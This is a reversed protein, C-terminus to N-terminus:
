KSWSIRQEIWTQGPMGPQAGKVAGFPEGGLNFMKRQNSGDANMVWIAWTNERKSVFAISKGDPSWAPLGDEAADSTLRQPSGGTAPVVWINWNPKDQDVDSMFAVKSGDPSWAPAASNVSTLTKKNGGSADVIALGCTDTPLPCDRYVIRNTSSWAPMQAKEVFSPPDQRAKVTPDNVRINYVRTNLDAGQGARSAYAYKTGDPSWTGYLDELRLSIQEDESGNSDIRHVGRQDPVWSQYLLQTGDPSFAPNSGDEALARRNGQPDSVYLTYSSTFVTFAIKGSLNGSSAQPTPSKPNPLPSAPVPVITAPAIATPVAGLGPTASPQPPPTVQGAVGCDALGRAATGLKANLVLAKQFYPIAQSCKDQAKFAQGLFAYADASNPDFTIAKQFQLIANGPQNLTLYAQGLAIYSSTYPAYLQIARQYSAVSEAANNLYVRLVEGYEFHYFFTNPELEVVRSWEALGADKQGSVIQIWGNSRHASASKDNLQLAIGVEKQADATRGARLYAEALFAHGLVNRADLTVAKEGAAIAADNQGGWALARALQAHADGNDPDLQAAKSAATSAEAVRGVLALANSLHILTDANDPEQKLAAQYQALAPDMQGQAMLDDGARLLTQVSAGPVPAATATRSARTPSADPAITRALFTGIPHGPVFQDVAFWLVAVLVLGFLVAGAIVLPASSRARARDLALPSEKETRRLRDTLKLIPLKEGPQPRTAPEQDPRRVPPHLPFAPAREQTAPRAGHPDVTRPPTVPAAHTPAVAGQTAPRATGSVSQPSAASRPASKAAAPPGVPRTPSPQPPHTHAQTPSSAAPNATAPRMPAATGAAPGARPTEASPQVHSPLAYYGDPEPPQGLIWRTGDYLYWQGSQAGIMWWRGQADLFRLKQLETKFESETLHGVALRGKLEYFRSEMEAITM